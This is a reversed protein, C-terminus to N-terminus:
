MLLSGLKNEQFHVPGGMKPLICWICGSDNSVTQYGVICKVKALSLMGYLYKGIYSCILTSWQIKMFSYIFSLSLDRWTILDNLQLHFVGETLLLSLVSIFDLQLQFHLYIVSGNAKSDWWFSILNFLQACTRCEWYQVAGMNLLSCVTILCKLRQELGGHGLAFWDSRGSRICIKM